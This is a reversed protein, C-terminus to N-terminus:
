LIVCSVDSFVRKNEDTNGPSGSRHEGPFRFFLLGLLEDSSFNPIDVFVRLAEPATFSGVTKSSFGFGMLTIRTRGDENLIGDGLTKLVEKLKTFDGSRSDSGDVMIIVENYQKNVNESGPVSLTVEYEDDVGTSRAAKSGDVTDFDAFDVNAPEESPDSEAAFATSACGFLIAPALFVALVKKKM